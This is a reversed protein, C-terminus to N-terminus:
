IHTQTRMSLQTSCSCKKKFGRPWLHGFIIKLTNNGGLELLFATLSEQEMLSPYTHLSEGAFFQGVINSFISFDNITLAVFLHYFKDQRLRLTM